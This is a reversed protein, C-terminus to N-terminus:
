RYVEEMMERKAIRRELKKLLRAMMKKTRRAGKSRNGKRDRLDYHAMMKNLTSNRM